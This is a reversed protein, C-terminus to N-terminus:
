PCMDRFRPSDIQIMPRRIGDSQCISPTIFPTIPNPLTALWLRHYRCVLSDICVLSHHSIPLLIEPYICALYTSPLHNVGSSRTLNVHATLSPTPRAKQDSKHVIDAHLTSYIYCSVIICDAYHLCAGHLRFHWLWVDRRGCSVRRISAFILRVNTALATAGPHPIVKYRVHRSMYTVTVDLLEMADLQIM